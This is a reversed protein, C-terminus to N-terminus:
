IYLIWASSQFKEKIENLISEAKEHTPYEDFSVNYLGNVKGIILAKLYGEQKLNEVHIKANEESSFVGSIIYYHKINDLKNESEVVNTKKIDPLDIAKHEIIEEKIPITKITDKLTVSEKKQIKKKKSTVIPKEKIKKEELQKIDSFDSESYALYDPTRFQNYTFLSAGCLILVVGTTFLIKNKALM